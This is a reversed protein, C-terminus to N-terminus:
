PTTDTDIEMQLVTDDGKKYTADAKVREIVGVGTDVIAKGIRFLFDGAARYEYKTDVLLTLDQVGAILDVFVIGVTDFAATVSQFRQVSYFHELNEVANCGYFQIAVTFERDGLIEAAGQDNPELLADHGISVLSRTDFTVYPLSPRPRDNNLLMAFAAETHSELLTKFATNIPIMDIM